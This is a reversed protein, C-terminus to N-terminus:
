FQLFKCKAPKSSLQGSNFLPVDSYSVSFFFLNLLDATLFFISFM